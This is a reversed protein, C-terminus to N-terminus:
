HQSTEQSYDEVVRFINCSPYKHVVKGIKVCYFGDKTYCNDPSPYQIPHSQSLLHIEVM